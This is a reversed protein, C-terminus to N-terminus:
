PSTMSKSLAALKMGSFSASLQSCRPSPASMIMKPNSRERLAVPCCRSGCAAQGSASNSFRAGPCAPTGAKDMCDMAFGEADDGHGVDQFALIAPRRSEPFGLFRPSNAPASSSMRQKRSSKLAWSMMWTSTRPIARWSRWLMSAKSVSNMM